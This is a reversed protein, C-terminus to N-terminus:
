SSPPPPPSRRPSGADRGDQKLQRHIKILFWIGVLGLVILIAGIVALVAVAGMMEHPLVTVPGSDGAHGAQAADAMRAVIRLM